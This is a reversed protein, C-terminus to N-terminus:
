HRDSSRRQSAPGRSRPMAVASVGASRVLKGDEGDAAPEQGAPSAPAAALSCLLAAAATELRALDDVFPIRSAHMSRVFDLVLRCTTYVYPGRDVWGTHDLFAEALKRPDVDHARLLRWTLPASTELAYATSSVLRYRYNTIFWQAAGPTSAYCSCIEIEEPSLAEGSLAALDGALVADAFKPEALIRRWVNWTTQAGSIRLAAGKVM